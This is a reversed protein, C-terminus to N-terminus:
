QCTIVAVENRMIRPKAAATNPALSYFSFLTKGRTSDKSREQGSKSKGPSRLLHPVYPLKVMSTCRTANTSLSLTGESECTIPCVQRYTFLFPPGSRRNEELGCIGIAFYPSSVTRDADPIFKTNCHEFGSRAASKLSPISAYM